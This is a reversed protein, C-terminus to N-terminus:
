LTACMLRVSVDKYYVYARLHRLAYLLISTLPERARLHRHPPLPPVVVSFLAVCASGKLSFFEDDFLPVSGTNFANQVVAPGLLVSKRRRRRRRRTM